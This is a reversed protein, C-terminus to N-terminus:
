SLRLCSSTLSVVTFLANCDHESEVIEPCVLGEFILVAL